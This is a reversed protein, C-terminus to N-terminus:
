EEWDIFEYILPRPEFADSVTFAAKAAAVGEEAGSRCHVRALLDGERVKEGARRQLLIGVAHDVADGARRRGGGLLVNAKGLGLASVHLYGGREARIERVEEALPLLTEDYVARADGGQAAVIEALKRLAAGSAVAEETRRQAEEESIGLALACLKRCHFLRRQRRPPFGHLNRRRM